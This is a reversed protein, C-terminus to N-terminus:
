DGGAAPPGASPLAGPQVQGGARYAAPDTTDPRAYLMGLDAPVATRLYDAVAQDHRKLEEIARSQRRANTNIVQGLERMQQEIDHLRELQQQHGELVQAQLEIQAHAQALLQEATDARQAELQIRPSIVWWAAAALLTLLVLWGLAQGLLKYKAM